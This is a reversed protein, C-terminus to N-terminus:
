SNRIIKDQCLIEKVDTIERIKTIIEKSHEVFIITANNSKIARLRNYIIKRVDSDIGSFMEDLVYLKKEFFLPIICLKRITGHSLKNIKKDKSENFELLRLIKDIEINSEGYLWTIYKLVDKVKEDDLFFQSDTIYVIDSLKINRRIEGKFKSEIGLLSNLFLTKGSGNKGTVQYTNGSEITVNVAELMINNKIKLSGNIIKIM